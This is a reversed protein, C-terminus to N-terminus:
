LPLTDRRNPRFQTLLPNDKELLKITGGRLSGVERRSMKFVFNFSLGSVVPLVTVSSLSISCLFFSLLM